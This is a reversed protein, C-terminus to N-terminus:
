RCVELRVAVGERPLEDRGALVAVPGRTGPPTVGGRALFGLFGDVEHLGEALLLLIDQFLCGSEFAEGPDIIGLVVFPESLFCVFSVVRDIACQFVGYVSVVVHCVVFFAHFSIVGIRAPSEPACEPLDPSAELLSQGGVIGGVPDGLLPEIQCGPAEQRVPIGLFGPHDFGEVLPQPELM